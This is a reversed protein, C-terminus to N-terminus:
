RSATRTRTRASRRLHLLAVGAAVVLTTAAGPVSGRALLVTVVEGAAAAGATATCVTLSAPRGASALLAHALIVGGVLSTVAGFPVGAVIGALVVAFAATAPPEWRHAPTDDATGGYRIRAQGLRDASYRWRAWPSDPKAVRAVGVIGIVSVVSLPALLAIRRKGKLWHVTGVTTVLTLLAGAPVLVDDIPDLGGTM